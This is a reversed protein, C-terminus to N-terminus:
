GEQERRVRIGLCPAHTEALNELDRHHWVRPQACTFTPLRDLLMAKDTPLPCDPFSLCGQLQLVLSLAAHQWGPSTFTMHALSGRHGAVAEPSGSGGLKVCLGFAVGEGLSARCVCKCVCLLEMQLLGERGKGQM